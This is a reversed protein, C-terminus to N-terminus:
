RRFSVDKALTVPLLKKVKVARTEPDIRYLFSHEGKPITVFWYIKSKPRYGSEEYGFDISYEQLKKQTVFQLVEAYNVRFKKTIVKEWASLLEDHWMDASSDNLMTFSSDLPLFLNTHLTDWSDGNELLVRFAIEYGVPSCYVVSTNFFTKYDDCVILSSNSDAVFRKAVLKNLLKAEVYNNASHIAAEKRRALTASEPVRSLDQSFVNIFSVISLLSAIIRLFTQNM